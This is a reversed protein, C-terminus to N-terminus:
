SASASIGPLAAPAVSRDEPFRITVTTGVGVESEIELEGGHLQMLADCIPLGLGTGEHGRRLSDAVQGFPQLVKALDKHRIGIGTDVVSLEISGGPTLRANVAVQGGEPTFKVANTLLNLVIQKLHREDARLDPLNDSLHREIRIGKEQARVEM